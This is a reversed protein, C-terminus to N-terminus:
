WWENWLEPIYEAALTRKHNFLQKIKRNLV